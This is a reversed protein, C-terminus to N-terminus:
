DDQKQLEYIRTHAKDLVKMALLLDDRGLRDTYEWRDDKRYMRQQTVTFWTGKESENKWISAIINGLTVQDIPKKKSMKTEESYLNENKM